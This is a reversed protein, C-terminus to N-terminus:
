EVNAATGKRKIIMGPIVYGNRNVKGESFQIKYDMGQDNQRVVALILLIFDENGTIEIEDASIEARGGALLSDVFAKIRHTPYGNKFQELLFDEVIHGLHDTEIIPLPEKEIRRSRINKHYLSKEDFFGQQDIEIHSELLTGVTEKDNDDARSYIGLLAALKGKITQDASMLYQIKEISSKTYASHKRDIEGVISGIRQYTDLVYDIASTIEKDAQGIDDYKRIDMAHERMSHLLMDDAYIDVLLSQIPDMYRFVSDLTKIPHYLRDIMKKYEGFHDQILWNVNNQDIIQRIHNRIAHYLTRLSYQLHETNAKASLVAEYAKAKDESLAQKLGSFTAFVLSSYEETADDGIESLLKLIPIAYSRPTIIEVFSGELLERDIWGSKELHSMILRAKANSTLNGEVPEDDPELKFVKDELYSNLESIFDDVRINLEDKFMSHLIMLADFYVERNGSSLVGFFNPPVVDFLKKL